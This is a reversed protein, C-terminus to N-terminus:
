RIRSGPQYNPGATIDVRTLLQQCPPEFLEAFEISRAQGLLQWPLACIRDTEVEIYHRLAIGEPTVTRNNALGKAELSEWSTDIMDQTNGRSLSLWDGEYQLWANHLISAEGGSLGSAAVLAWHTDGRWERWYNVAHWGSLVPNTPRPMALHSASFPRGVTPLQEAVNWMDPAFDTLPQLIDPAYEELGVLVAEDRAKWYPLFADVNAGLIGMVMRIGNPNISGLAAVMADAGAGAFPTCRSALYGAQAPLGLAVYREIAGPDWFIWGITTQISRANRKSIETWDPSSM